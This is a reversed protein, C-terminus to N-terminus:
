GPAHVSHQIAGVRNTILSNAIQRPVRVLLGGRQRLVTV